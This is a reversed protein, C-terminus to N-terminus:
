SGAAASTPSGPCTRNTAQYEGLYAEPKMMRQTRWLVRLLYPVMTPRVQRVWDRWRKDGSANLISRRWTEAYLEFFRRAGLRPEWLLHHMDYAHWPRGALRPALRAFFETGPLPTLITFGARRLDHRAVFDWLEAFNTETWDPDVLFNGNVGYGLSRAIRVAELSAGVGADKDVQALGADSAAEFGFFIDFDKALPRWAQLLDAQRCLIDTRTQVLIWRKSVGRKRLAEALERSRAPHHWFLDDAVFIADGAAAFDEVVAAVSRERYARDYLQWVSCFSCRYPCGRATEVLWIPKFLLCHYGNRHQEVLDRAPLPVHDLGTQAARPPTALWESGMRLRFGPLTDLPGGRVIAEVLAPVIEEGDDLCIADIEDCELPGPFAAAAHGGVLVFAEPAARRVARATARVQDYELSHLCSIGVLQPRTRRIWTDLGPRFRLDAIRPEHGRARLAAGIYELGLPEVRFFPGLGFRENGPDPRLLLVRM